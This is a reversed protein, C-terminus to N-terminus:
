ASQASPKTLLATKGVTPREGNGGNRLSCRQLLPLKLHSLQLTHPKKFNKLNFRRVGLGLVFDTVELVATNISNRTEKIHKQKVARNWSAGWLKTHCPHGLPGHADQSGRVELERPFHLHTSLFLLSARSPAINQRGGEERLCCPNLREMVSWFCVLDSSFTVETAKEAWGRARHCCPEPKM